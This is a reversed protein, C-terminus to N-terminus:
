KFYDIFAQLEATTSGEAEGLPLGEPRAIDFILVVRSHTPHNNFAYHRKSDDFVILRGPHHHVTEGDVVVGCTGTLSSGHGSSSLVDDSPDLYALSPVILPLHIRLV